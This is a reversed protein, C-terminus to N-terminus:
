PCHESGLQGVGARIDAEVRARLRQGLSVTHSVLAEGEVVHLMLGPPDTVPPENRGDVIAPNATELSPCMM